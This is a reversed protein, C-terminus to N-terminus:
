CVQWSYVVRHVTGAAALRSTRAAAASAALEAARAWSPCAPSRNDDVSVVLRGQVVVDQDKLAAVAVAVAVAVQRVAGALSAAGSDVQIGRLRGEAIDM